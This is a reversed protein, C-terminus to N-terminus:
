GNEPIGNIKRLFRLVAERTTYRGGCNITELVAIVEGTRRDRYGDTAWRYLTRPRVEVGLKAREKLRVLKETRLAENSLSQFKWRGNKGRPTPAKQM